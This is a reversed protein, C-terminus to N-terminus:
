EAAARDGKKQGLFNMDVSNKINQHHIKHNKHNCGKRGQSMKMKNM